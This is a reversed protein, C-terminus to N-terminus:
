NLSSKYKLDSQKLTKVFIGTFNYKHFVIM